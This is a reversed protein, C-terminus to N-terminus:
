IIVNYDVLLELVINVSTNPQNWERSVLLDDGNKSGAPRGGTSNGDIQEVFKTPKLVCVDRSCWFRLGRLM